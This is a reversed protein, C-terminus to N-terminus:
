AGAVAVVGALASVEASAAAGALVADEAVGAVALAASEWTKGPGCAWAGSAPQCAPDPTRPGSRGLCLVSRPSRGRRVIRWAPVAGLAM